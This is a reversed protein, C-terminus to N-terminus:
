SWDDNVQQPEPPPDGKDIWGENCAAPVFVLQGGLDYTVGVVDACPNSSELPDADGEDYYEPPAPPQGASSDGQVDENGDARPPPQGDVEVACGAAASLLLSTAVIRWM